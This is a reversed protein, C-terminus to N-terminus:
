FWLMWSSQVTEILDHFFVYGVSREGCHLQAKVRTGSRLLDEPIQDNQFAVRVLMANGDDSYVNLKRDLSLVKGHFEEGPFSVLAFDVLIPQDSKMARMLHSVRKEPLELEIEWLTNPDVVTMLKQGRTVPRRLLNQKVQWNVVRGSAPSQVVLLKLEDNKIRLQEKISEQNAVAENYEGDLIIREYPSSQQTAQARMLASISKNVQELEGNLNEIEFLLDTNSMRALVDGQRVVTDANDSVEIDTLIGDVNAFVEHQTQPILQGSAGLTFPHPFTCLAFGITALLIALIGLKAWRGHTSPSISAGLTKWLPLLFISNHNAANTLAAQGHSALVEVRNQLSDSIESDSLQEIILAGLFRPKTGPRPAAELTSAPEPNARLPIIGLLRTHSRDVYEHLHKEIQPPFDSEEGSYWLPEGTRIVRSALGNLKKIQESRREISDLGSVARVQTRSGYQWAVSVRDCDLIRRGENALNYMTQDLDLGSHVSRIFQELQKWLETQEHYRKLEQGRLFDSAIQCMQDLFRLYGRQTAPGAGPRQFIEVLGTTQEDIKLVGVVLLCETPNGGLENDGSSSHPGVLRSEGANLIQNLLRGHQAQTSENELVGTNKLNIQYNLSLPSDGTKMWVAGGVSALASVTRTLFGDYFDGISCDSKSLEAIENVLSRIQIKTREVLQEDASPATVEPANAPTSETSDAAEKNRSSPAAAFRPGASLPGSRGSLSSLNSDPTSPNTSM